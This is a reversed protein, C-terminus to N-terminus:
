LQKLATAFNEATPIDDTTTILEKGYLLAYRGEARFMALPGRSAICKGWQPDHKQPPTDEPEKWLPENM